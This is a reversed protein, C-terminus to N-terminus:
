PFPNWFPDYAAPTSVPWRVTDPEFSPRISATGLNADPDLLRWWEDTIDSASVADEYRRTVSGDDVSVTISSESRGVQNVKQVVAEVEVYKVVAQDLDVVPGLRKVIILEIGDLWWTIQAQEAADSISRGLAVGVDTYTAVAM